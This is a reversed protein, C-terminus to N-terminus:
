NKRKKNISENIKDKIKQSIIETLENKTNVLNIEKTIDYKLFENNITNVIFNRLHEIKGYFALFINKFNDNKLIDELVKNIVDEKLQSLDAKNKEIKKEEEDFNIDLKKLNSELFEKFEKQRRLIIKEKLLTDNKLEMEYFNYKRKEDRKMKLPVLFDM